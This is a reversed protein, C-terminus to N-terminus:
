RQQAEEVLSLLHYAAIVHGLAQGLREQEEPENQRYLIKWVIYNRFDAAEERAEKIGNDLTEARIPSSGARADAFENIERTPPAALVEHGRDSITVRVTKSAAETLEWEMGM